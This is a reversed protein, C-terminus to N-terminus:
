SILCAYIFRYGSVAVGHHGVPRAKGGGVAVYQAPRHIREEAREFIEAFAREDNIGVRADHPDVLAIRCAEAKRIRLLRNATVAFRHNRVAQHALDHLGALRNQEVDEFRVALREDHRPQRQFVVRPFRDTRHTERQEIFEFRQRWEKGM